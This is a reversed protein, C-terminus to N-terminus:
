QVQVDKSLDWTYNGPTQDIFEMASLLNSDYNKIVGKAGAINYSHKNCGGGGGGGGGGGMTVSLKRIM